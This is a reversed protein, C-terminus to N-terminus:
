AASVFVVESWSRSWFSVICIEFVRRRVVVARVRAVARGEVWVVLDSAGLLSGSRARARSIMRSCRRAAKAACFGRWM